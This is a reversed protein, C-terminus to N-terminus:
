GTADPATSLGRLLAASRANVGALIVDTGRERYKTRVDDLTAVAASDLLDADSLDIVVRPPDHAYDFASALESTSAFFLAGQVAYIREGGEPDLVSTVLALQAARRTFMLAALIVGVLVGYALNHTPV